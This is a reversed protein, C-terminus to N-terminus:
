KKAEKPLPLGGDTDILYQQYDSNSEDAPFTKANNEDIFLTIYEQKDGGPLEVTFVEYNM